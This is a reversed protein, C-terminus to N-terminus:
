TKATCPFRPTSSPSIPARCRRPHRRSHAHGLSRRPWVRLAVGDGHAHAGRRARRGRHARRRLANGAPAHFRHAAGRGRCARLHNRSDAHSRPLPALQALRRRAPAIKWFGNEATGLLSAFCAESSFDPWCLWDISGNRDVLAATECDGILAYDEIKSAMSGSEHGTSEHRNHTTIARPVHADIRRRDCLDRRERLGRRGLGSLRGPRGCRGHTGLRGSRFTRSCRTRAQAQGALLATNIPTVIAGPAVNNITIGLPGLEVALNRMMMRMGGKSCCYTTFGPFAM